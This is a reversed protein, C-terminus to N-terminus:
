YASFIYPSAEIKERVAAYAEVVEQPSKNEFVM